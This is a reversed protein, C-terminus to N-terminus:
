TMIGVHRCWLYADGTTCTNSKAINKSATPVVSAQLLTPDLKEKSVRLIITLLSLISGVGVWGSVWGGELGQPQYRASMTEYFMIQGYVRVYIM